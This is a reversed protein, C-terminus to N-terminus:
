RSTESEMPVLSLPFGCIIFKINSELDTFHKFLLFVTLFRLFILVFDGLYGKTPLPQTFQPIEMCCFSNQTIRFLYM